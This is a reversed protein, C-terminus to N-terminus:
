PNFFNFRTVGTVIALAIAAIIMAMITYTFINKASTISEPSGQSMLMFVGAVVFSAFALINTVVLALFIVRGIIQGPSGQPLSAVFETTTPPASPDDEVDFKYLLEDINPAQQAFATNFSAVATLLLIITLAFKTIKKINM